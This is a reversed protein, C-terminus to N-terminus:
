SGRWGSPWRLRTTGATRSSSLWRGSARGAPWRGPRPHRSRRTRASSARWRGSRRTTEQLNSFHCIKLRTTVIYPLVRAHTRALTRTRTHMHKQTHTQTHNHTNEIAQPQTRRLWGTFVLRGTDRDHMPLVESTMGGALELSSVPFNLQNMRRSVYRTLFWLFFRTHVPAESWAEFRYRTTHEYFERIAPNVRDPDFGDGALTAFDPQIGADPGPHIELNATEALQRYFGDGIVGPPGMPCQLWPADRKAVRRGTVRVWTRITAAFTSGVANAIFDPM